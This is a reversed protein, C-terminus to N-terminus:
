SNGPHGTKFMFSPGSEIILCTDLFSQSGKSQKDEERIPRSVRPDANIPGEVRYHRCTQQLRFGIKVWTHASVGPQQIPWGSWTLPAPEGEMNTSKRVEQSTRRKHIPLDVDNPLREKGGVLHVNVLVLRMLHCDILTQSAGKGKDKAPSELSPPRKYNLSELGDLKNTPTSM